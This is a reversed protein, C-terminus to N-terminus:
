VRTLIATVMGPETVAIHERNTMKFSRSMKMNWIDYIEVNYNRPKGDTLGMSIFRDKEPCDPTFFFVIVDDSKRFCFKNRGDFSTMDPEMEQFPLTQAITRLYGIRKASQGVMDGGYTWFIDKKNGDVAYCEGHTAYGGAMFSLWHRLTEEEPSLNGWGYTLNGEYQYEDNIVPKKYKNKLDIIISYTNPFQYSVHTMWPRDPYIPGCNHISRLHNYPDNEMLYYGIRDWDRRDPSTYAGNGDEAKCLDYENALSWWINRFSGVRAMIYDMYFTADDDSLGDDVGWKGFDYNHFLILDAEVGINMLDLIRKELLRFYEIVPRKYDFNNKKGEFPLCPPEHTLDIEDMGALYKPFVLMRAKNFNNNKLADLTKRCIEDPRYWWAYITTGTVFMPTGDAYNFHTGKCTSVPGHNDKSPWGSKFGGQIGDFEAINSKTKFYYEGVTGPMFRIKWVGDGDYFGKIRKSEGNGTFEASLVVDTFPNDFAKKCIFEKEFIGWREAAEENKYM